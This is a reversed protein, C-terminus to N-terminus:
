NASCIDSAKASHALLLSQIAADSPQTLKETVPKMTAIREFLAPDIARYSYPAVYSSPRSLDTYGPGDLVPGKSRAESVWAAFRDATVSDVTFRMGSFGDGSFQASLGPYQGPHDALLNLRTTM